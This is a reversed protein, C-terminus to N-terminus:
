GYTDRPGRGPVSYLGKKWSPRHPGRIIVQKVVGHGVEEAIRREIHPLLLTMQNAWATSDCRVILRDDEFTEVVCHQAVSPGVITQWKAMVSGLKTPQDWGEARVMRGLVAGLSSSRRYNRRSSALGPHAIWAAPSRRQDGELFVLDEPTPESARGGGAGEPGAERRAGVEAATAEDASLDDASAEDAAEVEADAPLAFEETAGAAFHRQRRRWSRRRLGAEAAQEQFRELVDLVVQSREGRTSLSAPDINEEEPRPFEAVPDKPGCGEPWDAGAPSHPASQADSM